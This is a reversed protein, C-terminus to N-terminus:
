VRCLYRQPILTPSFLLRSDLVALPVFLLNSAQKAFWLHCSHRSHLSRTHFMLLYFVLVLTFLLRSDLVALSFSHRLRVFGCTARTDSHLCRTNADAPLLCSLPYEYSHTHILILSYSHTNTRVAVTRSTQSVWGDRLVSTWDRKLPQSRVQIYRTNKCVFVFALTFVTPLFTCNASFSRSARSAGCANSKIM